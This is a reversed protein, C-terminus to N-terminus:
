KLYKMTYEELNFKQLYEENQLHILEKLKQNFDVSSYASISLLRHDSFYNYPMNFLGFMIKFGVFLREFLVGSYVGVGVDVLDLQQITSKKLDGLKVNDGFKNKYFAVSREVREPTRKEFPHLFITLSVDNNSEIFDKLCDMLTKEAEREGLGLEKEGLEERLWNGSSMFGITNKPTNYNYTPVLQKLQLHNFIPWSVFDKVYWNSKLQEYQYKQYPATYTFTSCVVKKYFNGLPNPSPVFQVSFDLDNMLLYSIFNADKEYACFFLFRKAKIKRCYTTIKLWEVMELLLLARQSKFKSNNHFLQFFVSICFLFLTATIKQFFSIVNPLSERYIWTANDCDVLGTLYSLRDNKAKISSDFIVINSEVYTDQATNRTYLASVAKKFYRLYLFSASLQTQSIRYSFKHFVDDLSAQLM